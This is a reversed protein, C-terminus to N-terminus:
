STNKRRPQYPIVGTVELLNQLLYRGCTRYDRGWNLIRSWPRFQFFQQGKGAKVRREPTDGGFKAQFEKYFSQFSQQRMVHSAIQGSLLRIFSRYSERQSFGIMLHIHNGVIAHRYVKVQFKRAIGRILGEIVSLNRRSRFGYEGRAFHSKVVVHLAQKSNLPRRRRRRGHLLEGGFIPRQSSIFSLQRKKM